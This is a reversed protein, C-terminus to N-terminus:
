LDRLLLQFYESVESEERLRSLSNEASKNLNKRWKDRELLPYEFDNELKDENKNAKVSLCSDLYFM